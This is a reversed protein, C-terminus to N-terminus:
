RTTVRGKIWVEETMRRIFLDAHAPKIFAASEEVLEESRFEFDRNVTLGERPVKDVDIIM